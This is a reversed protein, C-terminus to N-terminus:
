QGRYEYRWAGDESRSCFGWDDTIPGYNAIPVGRYPENLSDLLTSLPEQVPLRILPPPREGKWTMRTGDEPGGVFEVECETAPPLTVDDQPDEVEVPLSAVYSDSLTVGAERHAFDQLERRARARFLDRLQEDAEDWIERAIPLRVFAEDDGVTGACRLHILPQEM